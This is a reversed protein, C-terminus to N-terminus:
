RSVAVEHVDSAPQPEADPKKLGRERMWRDIESERQAERELHELEQEETRQVADNLDRAQAMSHYGGGEKDDKATKAAL